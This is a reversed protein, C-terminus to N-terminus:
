SWGRHNGMEFAWRTSSPRQFFADKYRPSRRQWPEYGGMWYELALGYHLTASVEEDSLGLSICLDPIGNRLETFRRTRTKIEDCAFAIAEDLTCQRQHQITLVINDNDGRSLEKGLSLIDNMFNVVDMTIVRMIRISPSAIMLRPCEVGGALEILDLFLPMYSTGRRLELYQDPALPQRTQLSVREHAMATLCYVWNNRARAQWEPSMGSATWDQWIEAFVTGLPSLLGAGPRGDIIELYSRVTATATAAGDGPLGEFQDDFVTMFATGQNCIDLGADDVYPYVVGVLGELDWSRYWDEDAASAFFNHGRLWSLNRERADDHQPHASSQLGLDGWLPADFLHSWAAADNTAPM